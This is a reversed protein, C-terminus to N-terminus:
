SATTLQRASSSPASSWTVSSISRLAQLILCPWISGSRSSSPSCWCCRCPLRRFAMMIVLQLAWFPWAKVIVLDQKITTKMDLLVFNAGALHTGGQPYAQDAMDRIREALEYTEPIEAPSEAILILRSYHDSILASIIRDPLLDPPIGTGVQTVYGVVSKMEPLALLDEALKEETAWQGKPVLLVMQMNEGFHQNLREEDRAERSGQPFSRAGYLFHNSRQGIYAPLIILAAAIMVPVGIRVVLRSFGKFSPLLTRHTTKDIIKYTYVALVPLLLFVSLLSLLVGKALCHWIPGIRFRMFVLTLVFLTTLASVSHPAFSKVIALRM